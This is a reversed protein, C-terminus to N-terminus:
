DLRFRAVTRQVHRELATRQARTPKGLVAISYLNMDACKAKADRSKIAEEIWGRNRKASHRLTHGCKEPRDPSNGDIIGRLVCYCFGENLLLGPLDQAM